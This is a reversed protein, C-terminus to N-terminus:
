MGKLVAHETRRLIATMQWALSDLAQVEGQENGYCLHQHCALRYKVVIAHPLSYERGEQSERVSPCHPQSPPAKMGM